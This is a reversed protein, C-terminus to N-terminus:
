LSKMKWSILGTSYIQTQSDTFQVMQHGLDDDRNDITFEVKTDYPINTSAPMTLTIKVVDKDGGDRETWHVKLYDGITTLNWNAIFTDLTKWKRDKLDGRSIDPYTYVLADGSRQTAVRATLEIAGATSHEIASLDPVQIQHIYEGAGAVRANRDISLYGTLGIRENYGLVWVENTKAFEESIKFNMKVLEDNNLTYGEVEKQKEDLEQFVLIVESPNENLRLKAKEEQFPIYIQLGNELNQNEKILNLLRENLNFKRANTTKGSLNSLLFNFDGDFKKGTEEWILNRFKPDESAKLIEKALILKKSIESAQNVDNSNLESDPSINETLEPSCGWGGMVISSPIVLAFIAKKILNKM